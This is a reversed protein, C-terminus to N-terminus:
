AAFTKNNNDHHHHHNNNNTFASSFWAAASDWMMTKVPKRKTPFVSAPVPKTRAGEAISNAAAETGEGGGEARVVEEGPKAEM